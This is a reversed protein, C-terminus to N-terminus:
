VQRLYNGNTYVKYIGILGTKGELKYPLYTVQIAYYKGNEDTGDYNGDGGILINSDYFGLVKRLYDAAETPNKLNVKQKAQYLINIEHPDNPSQDAELSGNKDINSVKPTSKETNSYSHSNTVATTAEKTSNIIQASNNSNVSNTTQTSLHTSSSLSKNLTQSKTKPMHSMSQFYQHGLFIFSIFLIIIVSSVFFWKKRM